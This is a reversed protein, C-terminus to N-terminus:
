DMLGFFWVLRRLEKVEKKNNMSSYYVMAVDQRTHAILLDRTDEDLPHAIPFRDKLDGLDGKLTFEAMSAEVAEQTVKGKLSKVTELDLKVAERFTLKDDM